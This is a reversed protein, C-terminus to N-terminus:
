KLQLKLKIWLLERHFFDSSRGMLLFSLFSQFLEPVFFEFILLESKRQPYCVAVSCIRIAQKASVNGIYYLLPLLLFIYSIVQPLFYSAYHKTIQTISFLWATDAPGCCSM